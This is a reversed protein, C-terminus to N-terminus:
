GTYLNAIAQRIDEDSTKSGSHLKEAVALAIAQYAKVHRINKKKPNTVRRERGDALLVYKGTLGIVLYPQGTDRGALSTVLQGISIHHASM